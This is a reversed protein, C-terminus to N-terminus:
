IHSYGKQTLVLGNGVRRIWGNRLYRQITSQSIGTLRSSIDSGPTVDIFGYTNRCTKQLWDQKAM